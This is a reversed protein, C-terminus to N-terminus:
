ASSWASGLNEPEGGWSSIPVLEETVREGDVMVDAIAIDAQGPQNGRVM